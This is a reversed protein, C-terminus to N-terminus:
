KDRNKIYTKLIDRVRAAEEYNEESVAKAIERKYSEEETDKLTTTDVFISHDKLRYVKQEYTMTGVQYKHVDLLTADKLNTKKNFGSMNRLLEDPFFSGDGDNWLSNLTNASLMTFGFM